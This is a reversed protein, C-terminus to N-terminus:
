RYLIRGYNHKKRKQRNINLRQSSGFQVVTPRLAFSGNFLGENAYIISATLAQRATTTTTTTPMGRSASGPAHTNEPSEKIPIIRYSRRGLQACNGHVTNQEFLMFPLIVIISQLAYKFKQRVSKSTSRRQSPQDNGLGISVHSFCYSATAHSGIISISIIQQVALSQMSWSQFHAYGCLGLTRRSNNVTRKPRIIHQKGCSSPSRCFSSSASIAYHIRPKNHQLQLSLVSVMSVVRCFSCRRQCMTDPARRRTATSSQPIWEFM